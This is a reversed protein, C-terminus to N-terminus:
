RLDNAPCRESTEFLDLIAINAHACRPRGLTTPAPVHYQRDIRSRDPTVVHNRPHPTELCTEEHSPVDCTRMEIFDLLWCLGFVDYLHRGLPEAEDRERSLTSDIM